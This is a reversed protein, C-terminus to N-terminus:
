ELIPQYSDNRGYVSEDICTALREYKFFVPHVISNRITMTSLLRFITLPILGDSSLNPMNRSHGVGVVFSSSSLNM